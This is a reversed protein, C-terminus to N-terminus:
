RAACRSRVLGTAANSNGAISPAAPFACGCVPNPCCTKQLRRCAMGARANLRRLSSSDSRRGWPCRWWTALFWEAFRIGADCGAAVIDIFGDQTTLELEIGPHEGLFPAVWPELLVCAAARPLNLRLTGCAQDGMGAAQALAADIGDLQIKLPKLLQAGADTLAVSRTTRSLLALGLAAELARVSQSVASPSVGLLSAAKRYSRGEAVAVFARLQALDPSKM